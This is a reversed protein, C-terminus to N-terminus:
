GSTISPPGQIADEMVTPASRITSSAKTDALPGMTGLGAPIRWRGSAHLGWANGRTGDRSAASQVQSCNLRYSGYPM